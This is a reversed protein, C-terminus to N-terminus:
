ESQVITLGKVQGVKRFPFSDKDCVPKINNSQPFTFKGDGRLYVHQEDNRWHSRLLSFEYRNPQYTQETYFQHKSHYQHGM